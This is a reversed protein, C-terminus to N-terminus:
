PLVWAVSEFPELSIESTWMGDGRDFDTVSDGLLNDVTITAGDAGVVGITLGITSVTLHDAVNILVVARVAGVSLVVAHVDESSSSISRYDSAGIAFVPHRLRLHNVRAIEAELTEEGGVFTMFPEGKLAFLTMMACTARTGIQERRWKGGHTPWWFTDHSDIHHATLSGIPLSADRQELWDDLERANRVWHSRGASGALVARLLWQEDYNYNLDMSARLLAGSPETYLLVSPKVARLEERLLAFLPVCGLM